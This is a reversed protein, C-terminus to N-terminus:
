LASSIKIKIKRSSSLLTEEHCYHFIRFYILITKFRKQVWEAFSIVTPQLNKKQVALKTSSVAEARRSSLTENRSSM